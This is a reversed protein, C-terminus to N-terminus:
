IGGVRPLKALDEAWSEEPLHVSKGFAQKPLLIFPSHMVARSAKGEM